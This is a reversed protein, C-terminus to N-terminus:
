CGWASRATDAAANYTQTPVTMFVGALRSILIHHSFVISAHCCSSTETQVEEVEKKQMLLVISSYTIDRNLPDDTGTKTEKTSDNDGNVDRSNQGALWSKSVM